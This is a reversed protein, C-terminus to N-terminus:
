AHVARRLAHWLSVEASKELWLWRVGGQEFRICLLLFAQFDFHTAVHGALSAAATELRWCEGDWHLRADMPHKSGTWSALAVLGVAVPAVVALGFRWGTVDMVSVWYGCVAAGVLWAGGLFWPQIRSRGVPFSVAPANHM